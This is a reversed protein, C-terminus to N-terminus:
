SFISYFSKNMRQRTYGYQDRKLELEAQKSTPDVILNMFLVCYVLTTTYEFKKQKHGCSFTVLSLPPCLVQATIFLSPFQANWEDAEMSFVFLACKTTLGNGNTM